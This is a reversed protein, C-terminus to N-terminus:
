RATLREQCGWAGAGYDKDFKAIHQASTATYGYVTRLCDYLTDTNKDIVAVVTQYSQLIYFEDTEFVWATCSRLQKIARANWQESTATEYAIECRENIIKQESKKM